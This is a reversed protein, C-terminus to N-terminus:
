TLNSVKTELSTMDFPGLLKMLEEFGLLGCLMM